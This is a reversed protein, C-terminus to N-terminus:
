AANAKILAEGFDCGHTTAYDTAKDVEAKSYRRPQGNRTAGGNPHAPDTRTDIFRDGVPARQYHKAIKTLHRAFGTDDLNQCDVLEAAVDLDVNGELHADGVKIGESSRLKSLDREYRALRATQKIGALEDSLQRERPTMAARERQYRDKDKDDGMGPIFANTGSPAAPAAGEAAYHSCKGSKFYRAYRDATKMEEPTLDHGPDADTSATADPQITPDPMPSEELSYRLKGDLSFAAKAIRGRRNDLYLRDKLVAWPADQLFKQYQAPTAGITVGLDRDPTVRLLALWDITGDGWLEISRRPFSAMIEQSTFSEGDKSKALKKVYLRKAVLCVKGDPGHPAVKLEGLLGWPPPQDTEKPRVVIGERNTMPPITHGPGLFGPNGSALRANNLDAIKQLKEPTFERVLNGKADYEKHVDFIAVEPYADYDGGALLQKLTDAAIPM